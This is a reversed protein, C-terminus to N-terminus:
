DEKDFRNDMFPIFRRENFRDKNAPNFAYVYAGAMLIAVTITVILGVWDVATMAAWDTQFYNSIETM